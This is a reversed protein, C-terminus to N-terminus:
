GSISRSHPSRTSLPPTGAGPAPLLSHLIAAGCQDVTDCRCSTRLRHLVEKMSRIREMAADLETLKREAM